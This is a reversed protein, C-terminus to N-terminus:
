GIRNHTFLGEGQAVLFTQKQWWKQIDKEIDQYGFHSLIYSKLFDTRFMAPNNTWNAFESTTVWFPDDWYIQSFEQPTEVWHVCDLLHEPRSLEKGKFQKTWLPNGPFKRHRFRVVDYYMSDLRYAAKYLQYEPDSILEWDNELFLFLSNKADDVLKRYGGAIGINQSSGLPNFGYEEAISIDEKSCEQFYISYQWGPIGLLGNNKYSTLTNILTTHQGWSLMAVTVNLDQIM